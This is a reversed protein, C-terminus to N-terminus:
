DHGWVVIQTGSAYNSTGSVKMVTLTTIQASTNDWKCSFEHHSSATTDATEFGGAFSGWVLKRQASIDIIDFAMIGGGLNPISNAGLPQCQNTNTGTADVGNNLSNRWAYNTATDSNFQIGMLVATGGSDTIPSIEVHLFKRATFSSCSVSSGTGSTSCLIAWSVTFTSPNTGSCTIGASCSNSIVGTNTFTQTTTGTISIGTGNAFNTKIQNDNTNSTVTIGAGTTLGKFDCTSATKLLTTGGASTCGQEPLSNTITIRTGNSSLTIGSGALLKKFNCNGSVYIGEGVSGLNTCVTSESVINTGNYIGLIVWGNANTQGTHSLVVADNFSSLSISSKKDITTFLSTIVVPFANNSIKKVAIIDGTLTTANYLRLTLTSTNNAIVIDQPPTLTLTGGGSTIALRTTLSNIAITTANSGTQTNIDGYIKKFSCNGSSSNSIPEGLSGLNNCVTSESALTGNYDITIENTGQVISIDPSGKLTRFNCNGDKYVQAYLGVNTCVTSEPLTNTITITNTGNTITIGTGGLLSKISCDGNISDKVIVIGGGVNSCVTSEENVVTQNVNVWQSGNYKIIQNTSPSIITVDCLDTLNQALVLGMNGDCPTPTGGDETLFVITDSSFVMPIFIWALIGSLLFIGAIVSINTNNMEM